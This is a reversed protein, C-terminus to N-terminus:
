SGRPSPGFVSWVRLSHSHSTTEILEAWWMLVINQVRSRKCSRLVPDSVGPSMKCPGTRSVEQESPYSLMFPLEFYAETIQFGGEM